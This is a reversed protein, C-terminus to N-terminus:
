KIFKCQINKEIESNVYNTLREYLDKFDAKKDSKLSQYYEFLYQKKLINDTKMTQLKKVFKRFDILKCLPEAKQINTITYDFDKFLTKKTLLVVTLAVHIPAMFDEIMLYDWIRLKFPKTFYGTFLTIFWKTLWMENPIGTKLIDQYRKKSIRKLEKYFLFYFFNLMPFGKEYLGIYLRSKSKFLEVLIDFTELEKMGSVELIFGSIFNVGLFNDCILSNIKYWIM